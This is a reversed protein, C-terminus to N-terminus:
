KNNPNKYEWNEAKEHNEGPGNTLLKKELVDLRFRLMEIEKEKDPYKFYWNYMYKTGNISLSGINYLLDVAEYLIIGLVM